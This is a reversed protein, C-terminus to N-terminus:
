TAARVVDPHPWAMLVPLKSGYLDLAAGSREPGLQALSDLM